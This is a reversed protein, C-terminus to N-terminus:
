ERIQNVIDKLANCFFPNYNKSVKDKYFSSLREKHETKEGTVFISAKLAPKEIRYGPSKFIDNLKAEMWYENGHNYYVMMADCFSLRDIHIKQCQDESGETYSHIVNFGEKDLCNHVTEVNKLDKEDYIDKGDYVLYLSPKDSSPPEKDTPNNIEELKDKIVTKFNELMTKLLDTRIDRPVDNQLDNIYKEQRDDKESKGLGPPIWILQNLQDNKCQEMALENQLEIISREEGEPVVGYMNGILHISLKCRKLYERVSDRFNGDKLLLPLQRDPLITYGDQKLSRQINEREEQLDFTTEALYVTKEPPSLSLQEGTEIQKDIAKLFKHIDWAVDDLKEKFKYYNPFGEEPMLEHPHDKEDLQFFNYGLLNRIEDPQEEIPVHTKVVKFIRSKNEVDLESSSEAAKLFERLEKMCWESNLYGPSIVTVIIKAKSLRSMIEEDFKDNGQLKFDRWIVPDRGLLEGLRIELCHHFRSIWGNEEKQDISLSKNARHTYSIFIDIEMKRGM